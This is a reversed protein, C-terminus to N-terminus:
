KVILIKKTTITSENLVKVIYMQTSYSSLDVNLELLNAVSLQQIAKGQLDYIGIEKIPLTSSIRLMSNTLEITTQYQPINEIGLQSAGPHVKTRFFLWIEKTADIDNLPYYLWQHDANNERWHIVPAGCTNYPITDVTINDGPVTNPLNYVSSDSCGNNGQWYSLTTAVSSLSPLGGNYPVTGDTTGHMHMIPVSRNPNCGSVDSDSMPGAVSAIAAIRSPLACLMHYTMIGGMSFGTFYVRNLDIDYKVKMTDILRSLFTIDDNTSSLLTGNNWANQGFANPKGQPYVVIFRATDAINDFGVNSFNTMIDGIGHLAIILPVGPESVANFATPLYQRYSRVDGNVDMTKNSFQAHSNIVAISIVLLYFYIKKRM